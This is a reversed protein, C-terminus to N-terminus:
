KVDAGVNLQLNECISIFRSCTSGQKAGFEIFIGRSRVTLRRKRERERRLSAIWRDALVQGLRAPTVADFGM